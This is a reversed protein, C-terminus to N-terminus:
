YGENQDLLPNKDRSSTPIPMLMLRDDWVKLASMNGVPDYTQGQMVVSAAQEGKVGGNRQPDEYLRIDFYRLGEGALEIRRERRIFNIAEEKSLGAPVDPMGCRHRLKNLETTVTGDYGTTQTRAEAYILLMEALRMVPFDAGSMYYADGWVSAVDDGGSMKGFVFGSQGYNNISHVYEFYLDDVFTNAAAFPFVISAYLRSDRNLYQQMYPKQPLDDIIVQVAQSFTLNDDSTNADGDPGAQIVAIEEMLTKYNTIRTPIDQLNPKSLGDALWYDDVLDQIPAVTAWAQKSSLNPSLFSTIRNFDGYDESALYEKAIIVESNGDVNWVNRYNFIGKLFQDEDVGLAEFDVLRKFYDLDKQNQDSLENSEFLSYGGEDIVKRAAAEAVAYEGFYYAARAKFAYAMYKNFRSPDNEEPLIQAAEDLETLIWQRVESAPDRPLGADFSNHVSDVMAVDGYFLTLYYYHWARMVRAEAQYQKRIGEEMGSFEDIKGILINCVRISAFNNGRDGYHEWEGYGFNESGSVTNTQILAGNSDWWNRSYANDAYGDIFVNDSGPIEAYMANRLEEVKSADIKSPDLSGQPVKEMFDDSCAVMALISICGLFISKIINYNM